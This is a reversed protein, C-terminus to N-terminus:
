GRASAACASRRRRFLRRFLVRLDSLRLLQIAALEAAGAALFAAALAARYDLFPMLADRVVAGAFFAILMMVALRAFYSGSRLRGTRKKLLVLSCVATVCYDCAMGVLLAGSGLYPPLFWVCLLMSAAGLLFFALTYRECGLSNLISTSIMTVSMPLLILASAAILKGSEANSYLFVGVGEGCAAFFPVLCGAILLTANLAKKVLESLQERDGRYYCESLEPVLVLAISSILSCPIMLVPMVMGGVVGYESMARSSSVGAQMLRMPFIVSIASNVLSSSTRMATVPLSSRLLPGIERKPSRLRGGKLFFYFAAASFSALYSVLVAVAAANVDALDCSFFVLLCVGVAIMVIEEILEILSYAFFRKNGWFCGRIIAYVSTFSLGFLFIYFLDACRPDSFISSFPKRLVFLLLTIPLSFCLSILMAATTAAQEGRADGHARHKAITRSLTIPLGSSCVTLFVAFVSLAVQYVGLGEPGLTRSLIIRYLFGLCHEFAAFLTVVAATKYLNM